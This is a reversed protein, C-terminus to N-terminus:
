GCDVPHPTPHADAHAAPVVDLFTARLQTKPFTSNPGESTQLWLEERTANIAATLDDQHLLVDDVVYTFQQDDSTYVFVPMDIMSSPGGPQGKIARLYIPEFMGPRAHAYLYTARGQGPQHLPDGLYMAVDCQPYTEPGGKPKIVPLDINLLPIWVRTAVRTTSASASASPAASGAIPPLTPLATTPRATFRVPSEGPAPGADAGSYTLLGGAILSVGTAALLAPVWRSRLGNRLSRV